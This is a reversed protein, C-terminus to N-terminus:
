LDEELVDLLRKRPIDHPTKAVINNLFYLFIFFCMFLLAINYM